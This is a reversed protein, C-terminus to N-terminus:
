GRAAGRGDGFSFIESSTLVAGEGVRGAGGFRLGVTVGAEVVEVAARAAGARAVVALEGAGM